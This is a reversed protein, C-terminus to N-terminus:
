HVPENVQDLILLKLHSKDFDSFFCYDIRCDRMLIKLVEPDNFGSIFVTKVNNNELSITTLLEIGLMDPLRHEAIIMHVRKQELHWLAQKGTELTIIRCEGNFYRQLEWGKYPDGTYIITLKGRVRQRYSRNLVKM